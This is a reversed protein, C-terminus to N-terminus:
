LTEIYEEIEDIANAVLEDIKDLWEKCEDIPAGEASLEEMLAFEKRAPEMGMIAVSSKARHAIESVGVWDKKNIRELIMDYYEPYKSKFIEFMEQMLDQDYGTRKNLLDIEFYLSSM